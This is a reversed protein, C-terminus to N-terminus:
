LERVRLTVLFEIHEQSLEVRFAAGRAIAEEIKGGRWRLEDADDFLQPRVAEDLRASRVFRRPAHDNFFRKAMAQGGGLLQVAHQGADEVPLSVTWFM